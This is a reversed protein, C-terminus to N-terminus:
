QAYQQRLQQHYRMQRKTRDQVSGVLQGCAADIDDGRTKRITAIFGHESLYRQFRHIRNNSPTQYVTGPYPNFPILNLKSPVQKEKLLKVLDCACELTDNVENILTYEFTIKKHPGRKAYLKCAEMLADLNYKKNIPVLLNRLADTPAHLSVALSVESQELLDYIRPVVGSTSLTVRRKSLGYSLDDMMISMAKVVHDFNMLPEGMGMMVINTIKQPSKGTEKALYCRAIWLQSIIEATSLNRNFGQKATSCFSCALMCGVQSSICLTGRDSEPIYVTEICNGGSVEILWKHTGDASGKSFRVKPTLVEAHAELKQRLTQKLDTMQTFDTVHKQHIWKFVQRAHFAKEDLSQFYSEM